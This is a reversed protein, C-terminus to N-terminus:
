VKSSLKNYTDDPYVSAKIASTTDYTSFPDTQENSNRSVCYVNDLPIENKNTQSVSTKDYVHDKGERLNSSFSDYVSSPSVIKPFVCTRDYKDETMIM